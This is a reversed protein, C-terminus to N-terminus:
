GHKDKTKASAQKKTKWKEIRRHFLPKLLARTPRATLTPCDNAATIALQLGNCDNGWTWITRSALRAM